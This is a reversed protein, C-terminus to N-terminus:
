VGVRTQKKTAGRGATSTPSSVQRLLGDIECFLGHLEVSRETIGLAAHHRHLAKASQKAPNLETLRTRRMGDRDDVGGSSYRVVVAPGVKPM